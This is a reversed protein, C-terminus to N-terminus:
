ERFKPPPALKLIWYKRVRVAPSSDPAPPDQAEEFAEDAAPMSVNFDNAVDQESSAATTDAVEDPSGVAESIEQPPQSSLPPAPAVLESSVDLQPSPERRLAETIQASPAFQNSAPMVASTGNLDLGPTTANRAVLVGEFQRRYDALLMPRERREVLGRYNDLGSSIAQALKARWEGKAILRSEERETVFGGEVLVAPINTLRLVAFRARKVGRDFEPMHGLMAHYVSTSLVLSNADVPSGAQMNLFYELLSNDQTSPAGRPTLSYIEFGTAAPNADTANFHISVFISDRTANAIRAREHLPVVEDKERTMVVNFGKAQLLPRLKLAVDLTFDKENGYSSRAGYEVGGHGPDLVITKIRGLNRIMHPRFQPEITKALDIRSVLFRGDSHQIVPFCLWNRVGNVIAERSDLTVELQNKGNDLRITRNIPAVDGPFGYFKAINDVTLYDWRGVKIVQWEAAAKASSGFLFLLLFAGGLSRLISSRSSIM